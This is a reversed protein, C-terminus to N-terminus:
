YTGILLCPVFIDKYPYQEPSLSNYGLLYLKLGKNKQTYFLKTVDTNTVFILFQQIFNNKHM